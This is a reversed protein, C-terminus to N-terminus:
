RPFQPYIGQGCLVPRNALLFSNSDISILVGIGPYLCGVLYRIPSHSGSLASMSCLEEQDVARSDLGEIRILSQDFKGAGDGRAARGASNEPPHISASFRQSFTEQKRV